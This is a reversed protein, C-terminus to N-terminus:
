ELYRSFSPYVEGATALTAQMLEFNQPLVKFLYNEPPPVPILQYDDTM